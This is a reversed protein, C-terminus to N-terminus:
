CESEATNLINKIATIHEKLEKKCIDLSLINEKETIKSKMFNIVESTNKMEQNLFGICVIFGKPHLFRYCDANACIEAEKCNFPIKAHHAEICNLINNKIEKDLYFENLFKSAADSSRKVHETLKKENLCEGLKLDMLITGLMVINKDASLKDAIEQGKKNSLEFNELAPHGTKEIEEIAFEHAKKIVIKLDAM